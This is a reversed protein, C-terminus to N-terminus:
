LMLQNKAHRPHPMPFNLTCQIHGDAMAKHKMNGSEFHMDWIEFADGQTEYANREYHM